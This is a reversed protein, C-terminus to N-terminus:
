LSAPKREAMVSFPFIMAKQGNKELPPKMTVDRRQPQLHFLVDDEEQTWGRQLPSERTSKRGGVGRHLLSSIGWKM